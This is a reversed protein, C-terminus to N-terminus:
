IGSAGPVKSSEFPFTSRETGRSRPGQLFLALGWDFSGAGGVGSGARSVISTNSLDLARPLPVGSGSGVRRPPKLPVSYRSTRAPTQPGRNLRNEDLRPLGLQDGESSPFLKVLL